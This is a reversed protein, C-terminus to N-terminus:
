PLSAQHTYYRALPRRPTSVYTRLLEEEGSKQNQRHLSLVVILGPFFVTTASNASAMDASAAHGRGEDYLHDDVPESAFGFDPHTDRLSKLV